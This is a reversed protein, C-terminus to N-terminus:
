LLIMGHLLDYYHQNHYCRQCDYIVRVTECVPHLGYPTGHNVDLLFAYALSRPEDHGM